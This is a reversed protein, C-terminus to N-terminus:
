KLDDSLGWITKTGVNLLVEALQGILDQVVARSWLELRENIHQTEEVGGNLLTFLVALDAPVDHVIEVIRVEADRPAENLEVEVLRSLRVFLSKGPLSQAIKDSFSHISTTDRIVPITSDEVGIEVLEHTIEDEVLVLLEVERSGFVVVRDGFTLIHLLEHVLNILNRQESRRANESEVGVSFNGIEGVSGFREPDVGKLHL